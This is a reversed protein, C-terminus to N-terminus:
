LFKSFTQACTPLTTHMNQLMTHFRIRYQSVSISNVDSSCQHSMIGFALSSAYTAHQSQKVTNNRQIQLTASNLAELVFPKEFLAFIGL